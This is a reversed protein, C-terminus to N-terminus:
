GARLEQRRGVREPEAYTERQASVVQGVLRGHECLLLGMLLLMGRGPEPVVVLAGYSQFLSTDWLLGSTLTPLMLDLGTEACGLGM